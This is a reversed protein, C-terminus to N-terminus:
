LTFFFFISIKGHFQPPSFEGNEVPQTETDSLDSNSKFEAQEIKKEDDDGPQGM